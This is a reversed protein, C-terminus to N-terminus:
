DYFVLTRVEISERPAKDEEDPDIFSSHPVRRAVGEETDFCKILTVEEPTQAYKFYWKHSSNPKVVYTEGARDPYILAAGILDSDPVSHADAVGLPDRFITKIPRWVNIIQFRKALLEDAEDPLHYRVRQRSAEYSQDVHVSRVPGRFGADPARNDQSGRRITHDFIYVHHAGTADKLLQEVEPYYEAKIKDDDSFDKEKSEHQYLQFGHSDLTYKSEDGTIDTVVADIEVRPREILTEPRGIVYPAPASGDGPDKYYNFKTHVNHKLPKGFELGHSNIPGIANVAPSAVAAAAM